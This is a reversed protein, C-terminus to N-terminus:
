VKAWTIADARETERSTDLLRWYVALHQAAVQDVSFEAEARLRAAAGMQERLSPSRLLEAIASALAASDRPRVLLGHVRHDVVHRCGPVDTTVMARGAAAAELLAKPVGEGYSPLVVLSAQALVHPMDHRQGWWQIAGKRTFERLETETLGTRNADLGGVLAFRAEPFDHKLATAAEVFEVVGKDRLMRAPLVILPPGPPVPQVSFKRLDVGSGSILVCRAEDVLRQNTFYSRDDPNQFITVQQPGALAARYLAKVVYRRTAALVGRSLFVYGLGPVANVTAGGGTIRRALSGYLVPKITVNHVIDPSVTRIVRVISRFSRWESPFSSASRDLDLHHWTIGADKLSEGSLEDNPAALHVDFGANRAAIGIPLRHSLFFAPDNVVFLLRPAM